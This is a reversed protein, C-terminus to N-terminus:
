KSIEDCNNIQTILVAGIGFFSLLLLGCLTLIKM